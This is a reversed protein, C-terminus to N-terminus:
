MVDGPLRKKLLNIELAAQKIQLIVKVNKGVFM